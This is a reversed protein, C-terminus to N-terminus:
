LLSLRTCNKPGGQIILLVCSLWHAHCDLGVYGNWELSGYTFATRIDMVTFSTTHRSWHYPSLRRYEHLCIHIPDCIHPYKSCFMCLLRQHRKDQLRPPLWSRKAAAVMGLWQLMKGSQNDAVVRVGTQEDAYLFFLTVHLNNLCTSSRNFSWRM